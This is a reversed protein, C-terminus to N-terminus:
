RPWPPMSGGCSSRRLSAGRTRAPLRAGRHGPGDPEGGPGHFIRGPQQHLHLPLPAAGDPARVPGGGGGDGAPRLGALQTGPEPYLEPGLAWCSTAYIDRGFETPASICSRRACSGGGTDGDAGAGAPHHAGPGPLSAPDAEPGPPGAQAADETLRRLEAPTLCRNSAPKEYWANAIKLVARATGGVGCVRPVPKGPLRAGHLAEEVTRRIKELEKRRPWIGDVCRDFLELSGIPLSQAKRIEGGRLDLIETSGGGIDFVAGDRLDAALRTGYYGLKAELEGSIVDVEAGTAERIQAVAEETNRINRLSATAFVHPAGLGFQRLLAQFDRIAQAPGGSARRRSAGGTSMASWAPWRRKQSCCSLDATRCRHSLRVAPHHQVGPGRHRDEHCRRSRKEAGTLARYKVYVLNACLYLILFRPDTFNGYISM